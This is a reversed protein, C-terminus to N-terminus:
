NRGSKKQYNILCVNSLLNTNCGTDSLFQVPRGEVKGPLFYSSKFPKQVLQTVCVGQEEKELRVEPEVEPRTAPLETKNVPLKRQNSQNESAMAKPEKTENNKSEKQVGPTLVEYYNRKAVVEPEITWANWTEKPM